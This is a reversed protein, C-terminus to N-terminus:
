QVPWQPVCRRSVENRNLTTWKSDDDNLAIRSSCAARGPDANSPRHLKTFMSPYLDGSENCLRYHSDGRDMSCLIVRSVDDAM